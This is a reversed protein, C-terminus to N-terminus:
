QRLLVEARRGLGSFTDDLKFTPAWLGISSNSKLANAIARVQLQKASSFAV